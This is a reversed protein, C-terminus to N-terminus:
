NSYLNKSATNIMNEKLESHRLVYNYAQICEVNTISPFVETMAQVNRDYITQSQKLNLCLQKNNDM